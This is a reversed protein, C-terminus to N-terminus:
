RTPSARSAPSSARTTRTPASPWSTSSGVAPSRAGALSRRVRAQGPAGRSGRPGRHRRMDVFPNRYDGSTQRQKLHHYTTHKGCPWRTSTAQQRRAGAGGHVARLFAAPDSIRATSRPTSPARLPPPRPRRLRRDAGEPAAGRREPRHRAQARAGRDGGADAARPDDDSRARHAPRHPREDGRVDPVAAPGERLDDADLQWNPSLLPHALGHAIAAGNLYECLRYIDDRRAQIEDHQDRRSTGPSSTCSAATRPSRATVEESLFFDPRDILTLGGDITDHDTLTVLSMGRAKCLEYQRAPEAYSEPCGFLRTYWEDNGISAASHLHLDCRTTRMKGRPASPPWEVSLDAATTWGVFSRVVQTSRTAPPTQLISRHREGSQSSRLCSSRAAPTQGRRVRPAEAGIGNSGTSSAAPTPTAARDSTRPARRSSASGPCRRPSRGRPADLVAPRPSNKAPEAPCKLCNQVRSRAIHM